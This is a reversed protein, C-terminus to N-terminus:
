QSKSQLSQRENNQFSTLTSLHSVYQEVHTESVKNCMIAYVAGPEPLKNYLSYIM